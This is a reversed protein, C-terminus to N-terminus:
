LQIDEFKARQRLTHLYDEMVNLQRELLGRPCTPTFELENKAWKELMAKLKFYRIKVQLYEAKFRKKYDDSNMLAVTDKLELAM